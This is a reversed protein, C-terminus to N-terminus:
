APDGLSAPQDTQWDEGLAMLCAQGSPYVKLISWTYPPKDSVWIEYAAQPGALGFGLRAEGYKMHLQAVISTYAGCAIRAAVPAGYLAILAALLILRTM